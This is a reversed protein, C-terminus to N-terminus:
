TMSPRRRTHLEDYNNLLPCHVHTTPYITPSILALKQSSRWDSLPGKGIDKIFWSIRSHSLGKIARSAIGHWTTHKFSFSKKKAMLCENTYLYTCLLRPLYIVPSCNDSCPKRTRAPITFNCEIRSLRWWKSKAKVMRVHHSNLVKVLLPLYM